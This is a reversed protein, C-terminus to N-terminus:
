YCDIFHFSLTPISRSPTTAPVEHGLPQYLPTRVLLLRKLFSFQAIAYDSAMVAQTGEKGSIGIGIHAETIMPVDNAGDGISLTRVSM